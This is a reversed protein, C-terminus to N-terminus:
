GDLGMLYLWHKHMRQQRSPQIETAPQISKEGFASQLSKLTTQLALMRQSKAKQQFFSPQHAGWPSLDILVAKLALFETKITGLAIMRLAALATRYDLIPRAFTRRFLKPYGDSGEVFLLMTDSKSEKEILQESLGRALDRLILDLHETSQIEGDFSIRYAISQKPFERAVPEPWDGFAISRLRMAEKGFYGRLTKKQIARVDSLTSCGLDKLRSRTTGDLLPIHDVLVRGLVECSDGIWTRDGSLDACLSAMWKSRGYAFTFERGLANEIADAVSNPEPHATLDIWAEHPMGPEIVDSYPVLKWLWSKQAEAFREQTYELYRARDLLARAQTLEMGPHVGKLHGELDVDM